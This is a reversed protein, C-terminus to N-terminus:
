GLVDDNTVDSEVQFVKLTRLYSGMKNLAEMADPDINSKGESSAQHGTKALVRPGVSVCFVLAAVILSATLQLITNGTTSSGPPIAPAQLDLQTRPNESPNM